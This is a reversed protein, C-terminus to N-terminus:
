GIAKSVIYALYIAILCLFVSGLVNTTALLFQSNRILNLTEYSFTSFTTFGGCLGVTLFLRVQPSLFDKEDLYYMIFGLAFSGLINVVLTGYPFFSEVKKQIFSALGYRLMGGIAAGVSIVFYNIM